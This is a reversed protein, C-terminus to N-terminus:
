ALLPILCVIDYRQGEGILGYRQLPRDFVCEYEAGEEAGVVDM